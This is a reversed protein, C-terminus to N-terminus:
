SAGRRCLVVWCTKLLLKIDLWLSWNDIYALDLRVIEDFDDIQNRGSVQWLGTIGPKICIRRRHWNEYQSVEEPTPPRTGVLSMEGKLVNWFQPLEDLSAKRLFRGVRTVRPDDKIKFIAGNMENQELLAQKCEEADIHMSRFKWCKFIRGNMGVRKQGFFLPGPSDLRIALAIVPLLLIMIALGVLSGVIDVVRKLFLQQADLCKVHFTLIPLSNNFFSLDKRYRELDYFDLVMRVTVGLKELEQLYREIDLVQDKALCIVVEDVPLEKCCALLRDLRGYVRYSGLFSKLPGPSVQIVGLVRLGWDAHSEVLEIFHSARDTAGVILLQRFNFGLRRLLGLGIKLSVRQLFILLCACLLFVVLLKRSFMDRSIFLVLASLCIAGLVHVSLIRFLLDNIKIQRISTYLRYKALLYYWVPLAPLLIWAYERFHGLDVGLYSGCLHYALWFAAVVLSLDAVVTLRTLLKAQEKLM